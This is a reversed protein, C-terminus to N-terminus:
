SGGWRANAKRSAGGCRGHLSAKPARAEGAPSSAISSPVSTRALRTLPAPSSPAARPPWGHVARTQTETAKHEAGAEIEADPVGQSQPFGRLLSRPLPTLPYPLLTSPRPAITGALAPSWFGSVIIRFGYNPPWPPSGGAAPPCLLKQFLDLAGQNANAQRIRWLAKEDLGRAM